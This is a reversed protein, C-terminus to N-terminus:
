CPKEFSSREPLVTEFAAQLQAATQTVDEIVGIDNICIIAYTKEQIHHCVEPVWAERLHFCKQAKMSVPYFQGSMLQWFKFVYQNVNTKERFRYRCTDALIEPEKEWVTELTSKLYATTTHSYFLGPCWPHCVAHMITKTLKKIGNRPSLMKKWHKKLTARFPFNKNIVSMVSGNIWGISNPNFVISQLSFCDCPLSNKFFFEPKIAKTIFVDDNFYVFQEALGEIRHLNLEIPNAQFTPLYKEPIYDKHYVIHLKPNTTDLWEPIHGWTIFHIKRVWPAYAEVTRFWYPLLGWDRYRAERADCGKSDYKAREELWAPDSGDVWPIVFDIEPINKTHM